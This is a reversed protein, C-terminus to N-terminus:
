DKIKLKNKILRLDSLIQGNVELQKANIAAQAVLAVDQGENKNTANSVSGTLMALWFAGSAVLACAGVAIGLPIKTKDNIESM